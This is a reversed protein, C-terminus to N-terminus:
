AGGGSVLTEGSYTKHIRIAGSPANDLCLRCLTCEDEQDPRAVLREGDLAYIDVPCVRVLKERGSPTFADDDVAIEIFVGM